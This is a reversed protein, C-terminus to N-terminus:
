ITRCRLWDDDMRVCQEVHERRSATIWDLTEPMIQLSSVVVRIAAEKTVHPSVYMKFPQGSRSGTVVWDQETTVADVGGFGPIPTGIVSVDRRAIM